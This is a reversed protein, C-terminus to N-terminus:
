SHLLNQVLPQNLWHDSTTVHHPRVFKATCSQHDSSPFGAALRVVYGEQAPIGTPQNREEDWLQGGVRSVGTFVQDHVAPIDPLTARFLEPVVELGLLEAWEKTVDWCLCNDGNYIGFVLFYSPLKDYFISHKAYPNEGCVRMGEPIDGGIRAALQKVWHRSPHDKSDMSRAHCIGGPYITTNEGDLKETWVMEKNNLHDYRTLIEDDDTRGRSWPLHKTRPYKHKEM